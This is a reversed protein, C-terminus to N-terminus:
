QKTSIVLAEGKRLSLILHGNSVPTNGASKPGDLTIRSVTVTKADKWDPPLEWTKSEYGDRSYAILTRDKKWLAPICIDNGDRTQQRGKVATKNNYYHWPLVNLCFQEQLGTLSVPDRKIEPEARMPTSCYLENPQSRVAGEDAWAMPQLGVFADPRIFEAGESTVDFGLQRWYRYIKRQTSAEQQM